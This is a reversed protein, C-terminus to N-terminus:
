EIMEGGLRGGRVRRQPQARHQTRTVRGIQHGFCQGLMFQPQQRSGLEAPGHLHEEGPGAQLLRGRLHHRPVPRGAIAGRAPDRIQAAPDAAVEDHQGLVGAHRGVIGPYPGPIEARRGPIVPHRALIEAPRGPATLHEGNVAVRQLQADGLGIGLDAADGPVQCRHLAVDPLDAQGAQVRDEDIGGPPGAAPPERGALASWRHRPAEAQSLPALRDADLGRGAQRM